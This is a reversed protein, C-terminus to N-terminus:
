RTHGAEPQVSSAPFPRVSQRPGEVEARKPQAREAGENRRVLCIAWTWGVTPLNGTEIKQGNSTMESPNM